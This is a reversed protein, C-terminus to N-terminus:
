SRTWTTTIDAYTETDANYTMNHEGEVGFVRNKLVRLKTGSKAADSRNLRIVGVVNDALQKIGSSGKLQHLSLEEGGTQKLHAVLMIHIGLRQATARLERCVIEYAEYGESVGATLGGLDEVLAVKIGGITAAFDLDKKLSALTIESGEPNLYINSKKIWEKIATPIVPQKGSGFALGKQAMIKRALSQWSMEQSAIFVPAEKAIRTIINLSLTTKGCGTDGTMITLEGPRLGHLTEDIAKFGCKYGELSKYADEVKLDGLHTVTSRTAGRSVEIAGQAFGKWAELGLTMHAENADKYPLEIRKWRTPPLIDALQDAAKRGPEDSDMAIYITSYSLVYALNEKVDKVAGSAGRVISAAHFGAANWSLADVEGECIIIHSKDKSQQPVYLPMPAGPSAKVSLFDKGRIDRLKFRYPMAGQVLPIIWWVGSGIIPVQSIDTGPLRKSLWEDVDASRERKRWLDLCENHTLMALIIDFDENLM